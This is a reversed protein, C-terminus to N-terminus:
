EVLSQCELSLFKSEAKYALKHKPFESIIKKLSGCADKKKDINILSVSLKFLMDPAKFSIPFKQYGEALILAAERYEKKLLYIEGLWYHASGSLKNDKHKEIFSQFAQKAELFKQSRIMDFAKQFEEEPTTEINNKSSLDATEDGNVELNKKEENGNTLDESNIVLTGLTNENIKNDIVIIESDDYSDDINKINVLKKRDEYLNKLDDIRFILEEFNENLIKIDKELDYLRLDFATLNLTQNIEKSAKTNQGVQEKYVMQSLDSVERQMRDLQQKLTLLSEKANLESIVFICLVFIVLKYM